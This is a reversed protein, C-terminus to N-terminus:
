FAPITAGTAAGLDPSVLTLILAALAEPKVWSSRDAGPMAARNAPTDITGPAVANVAIEEARLEEGLAATLSVVGAKAVGYAIKGAEPRLATRAAVNVIRGGAGDGRQRMRRVAERCCLFTTVLNLDLQGRLDALTTEAIPSMAFGGALHVSAWLPAPLGAYFATVAAEDTLNVGGTYTVGSPGSAPQAGHVPVHVVAGARAFAAVVAGGLAGAGGTVVVLRGRLNSGSAESV